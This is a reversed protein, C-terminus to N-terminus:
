HPHRHHVDPYHPHSHVLAEHRHPHSHPETMLEGPRHPHQHHEDHVHSHEHEVAEHRHEHEHRETLHLWVGAAMLAAAVFFGVGVTDGLLLLSAAAGIFPATSFYAGTRATGVHRLAHIFLVLSVGYGLFGVAGATLLSRAQPWHAGLSLGLALNVSGATLGKLMAIQVPDSASLKRTLNNDIGWALCAGAIAIAGWPFGLEPTGLWTVCAGGATILAMGLAVRRDFNEKFVFWALAATFVGELNLLLATTSAATSALGWMLLAPGIVGGFGIVVVLWPVDKRTLAAEAQTRKGRGLLWVATLGMGSGLYLLGALLVPPVQPTLSKALPTSAGFLGAAALACGIGKWKINRSAM